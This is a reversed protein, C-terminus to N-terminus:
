ALGVINHRDRCAEKAQDLPTKERVATFLEASDLTKMNTCQVCPAHSPVRGRMRCAIASGVAFIPSAM